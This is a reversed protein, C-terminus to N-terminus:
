RRSLYGPLCPMGPLHAPATDRTPPCAYYMSHVWGGHHAPLSYAVVERREGRAERLVARRGRAERRECCSAVLGRVLECPADRGRVCADHRRRGRASWALGARWARALGAALCRAGQASRIQTRVHAYIRARYGATGLPYRGFVRGALCSPLPCRLPTM